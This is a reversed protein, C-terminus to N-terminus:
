QRPAQRRMRRTRGIKNVLWSGTVALPFLFLLVVDFVGM